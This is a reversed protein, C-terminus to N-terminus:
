EKYVWADIVIIVRRVRGYSYGPQVRMMKVNLRFFIVFKLKAAAATVDSLIAM